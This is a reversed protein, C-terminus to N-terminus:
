ESERYDTQILNNLSYNRRKKVKANVTMTAAVFGVGSLQLIYVEASGQNAKVNPIFRKIGVMLSSALILVIFITKLELKM